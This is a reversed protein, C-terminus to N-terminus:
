PIGFDWGSGLFTTPFVELDWFDEQPPFIEQFGDQFDRFEIGFIRRSCSWANGFIGM